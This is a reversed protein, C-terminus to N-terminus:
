GTMRCGGCGNSYLATVETATWRTQLPLAISTPNTYSTRRSSCLTAPQTMTSLGPKTSDCARGLVDLATSQITDRLQCWRNEVSIDAEAVPIKALINALENSSPQLRLRMESTVFHHDMWGNAGPIAKTVLMDQKDRRRVLVYDLLHWHRSQPQVCTAQQRMPLRFFTNTLLLRHEQVLCPLRRVIDNRIAFAVGADRREAKPRGSWFFIYCAGMEELQGFQQPHHAPLPQCPTLLIRMQPMLPPAPPPPWQRRQTPITVPIIASTPTSSTSQMPPGTPTHDGTAATTNATSPQHRTSSPPTQRSM